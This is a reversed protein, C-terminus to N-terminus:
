YKKVTKYSKTYEYLISWFSGGLFSFLIEEIPIGAINIGIFNKLSYISNIYNPFFSNFFLFSLFYFISFFLGSYTMQSVLDPRKYGVYIECVFFSLYLNYITKYPLLVELGLFLICFLIYPSLGKHKSKIKVDKKKYIVEYGIAAIGGVIFTFIFDEIGFGFKNILNFLSPPNWYEHVFLVESFGFPLALFSGFLLEKRLDKRISYFLLWTVSLILCGVFYGIQLM